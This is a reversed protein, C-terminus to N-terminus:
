LHTPQDIETRRLLYDLGGVRFWRYGYAEIVIRHKGTDDAQSHDEALLNILLNGQDANAGDLGVSFMMHMRNGDRGFYDMDTDPLVNAEALVICDGKRWQLFERFIRLMDYQEEPKHVDPGKTAIIFPVADMRFGSVGLQIWFGM